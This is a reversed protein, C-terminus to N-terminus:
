SDIKKEYAILVIDHVEEGMNVYGFKEYFRHNRTAYLPTHLTWKKAPYTQEIFQIAQTGVGRGHYTPDIYILDLHFHGEGEDYIVIGGIIQSEDLIKYYLAEDIKQLVTEVDNYGPPGDLPIGPYIVADNHFAAIQVKMLAAADAPTAREFAITM